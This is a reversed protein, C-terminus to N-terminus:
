VGPKKIKSVLTGFNSHIATFDMMGLTSLFKDKAIIRWITLLLEKGSASLRINKNYVM